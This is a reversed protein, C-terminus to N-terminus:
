NAAERGSALALRSDGPPPAILRRRHSVVRDFKAVPEGSPEGTLLWAGDDRRVLQGEEALGALATSVTPRRAGVLEGLLRHSLTLPVVVGDPTVRGWREALHWFLAILRRDVNNLQAIAKMTALRELRGNLRDLLAANVEPFRLVSMGFGRNLVGLRAEALVQWRVRQNLLDAASEPAWPRLLDGPGLLETSISDELVVERALAGSVLLLGFHNPGASRLEGGPWEGRTLALVRVGLEARAAALRQKDLLAGLEPDIDLLPVLGHTRRRSPSAERRGPSRSLPSLTM